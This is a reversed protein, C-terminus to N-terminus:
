KNKEQERKKKEKKEIADAFHQLIVEKKQTSRTHFIM